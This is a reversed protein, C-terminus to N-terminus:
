NRELMKDIVNLIEKDSPAPAKMMEITFDKNILITRPIENIYYDSMASRDTLFQLGKLPNAGMYKQWEQLRADISLSLIVIDSRNEYKKRLANMFPFQGICPACWTAWVELLIVKGKFQNLNMRGGNSDTLVIDSASIEEAHLFKYAQLLAAKYSKNTISNIKTLTRDKSNTTYSKMGRAIQLAILFERIGSYGPQRKDLFKSVAQVDMRYVQLKLFEPNAFDSSLKHIYPDIIKAYEINFEASHSNNGGTKPHYTRISTLSNIVDAKMRVRELFVFKKELNALKKLHTERNNWEKLIFNLTEQLTPKINDRGQLYSGAFPFPTNLLYINEQRNCGQYKASDPFERDIFVDLKCGPSLYLINRGFRFYAPESLVFRTSFFGASDVMIRIISNSIDLESIESLNELEVIEEFNKVQGTLLVDNLQKQSFCNLSLIVTLFFILTSRM